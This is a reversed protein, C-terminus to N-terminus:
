PLRLLRKYAARNQLLAAALRVTPDDPLSAAIQRERSRFRAAIENELRRRIEERGEGFAAEDEAIIARSLEDFLRAIRKGNQREAFREQLSDLLAVAGEEQEYELLRGLGYEEFSRLAQSGLRFNAPLSDLPAAYLTAFRFFAGAGELRRIISEAPRDPLSTDPLIGAGSEVPRGNDTYFSGLLSDPLIDAGGAPVLGETQQISRGSPTVYWATTLRMSAGFPLTRVSQVMGKGVTPEGVILGLDHDQIAAALLESASASRRDTLVALPIGAAIPDRESLWVEREASDRGAVAVIMEGEPVFCEAIRVAEELIGGTNGRLDLIIGAVKGSSSDARFARLLESRFENGANEGFRELRLYLIGEEVPGSYRLSPVRVRERTLSFSMERDGEGRRVALQLTSGVEGRLAGYLDEPLGGALPTGDVALIVDGVRVGAQRASYGELVDTVTLAGNTTDAEIGVGVRLSRRSTHEAAAPSVYASYRDLSAIMGRIAQEALEGPDTSGAYREVIERYVEGFLELGRVMGRYYDDTNQQAAAPRFTGVALFALAAVAAPRLASAHRGARGPSTLASTYCSNKHRTM